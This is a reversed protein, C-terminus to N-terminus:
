FLDFGISRPAAAREIESYRQRFPLTSKLDQSGMALGKQRVVIRAHVNGRIAELVRDFGADGEGVSFGNVFYTVPSGADAPENWEITLHDVEMM